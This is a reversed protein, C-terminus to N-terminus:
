CCIVIIIIITIFCSEIDDLSYFILVMLNMRCLDFRTLGVQPKNQELM